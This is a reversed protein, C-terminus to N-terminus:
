RSIGCHPRIGANKQNLKKLLLVDSGYSLQGSFEESGGEDGESLWKDPLTVSIGSM